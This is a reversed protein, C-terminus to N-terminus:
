RPESGLIFNVRLLDSWKFGVQNRLNPQDFGLGLDMGVTGFMPTQVRFGVGVSRRLDLPNVASLSSWANGAEAFLHGYITGASNFKRRLEVFVKQFVAAGVQDSALLDSTRYGRLTIPDRGTVSYQQRLPDAGVEFREFPVLDKGRSYSGLMGAQVSGKLSWKSGIPHYWDAQVNWKHYELFRFSENVTSSVDQQGLLSYPPTFQGSVSLLTGRRPFHQDDLTSRVFTQKLFINNFTGDSLTSGNELGLSLDFNDTRIRQLNLATLSMTYDDPWRLSRTHEVGLQSMAFSGPSPDQTRSITHFASFTLGHPRKGGLWPETFSLNFSQYTSGASQARLSLHQGGGLIMRNEKNRDFFRGLAINNFTFGVTGLLGDGNPNLGGSLAVQDSSKEKLSYVVDVTGNAPNVPTEISLSEPDFYGLNILARQSRIIDSRSFQDGPKTRLVRQIVHDQTRSNGKVVVRDIVAKRGESLQIKLDVQGLSDVREEVKLDFFLYGQDLYLSSIDDGREGFWLRNGFAGKLYFDGTKFGLHRELEKTTFLLNGYWTIKGIRYRLGEKIEIEIERHGDDDISCQESVIAADLYGLNRYAELISEKDEAFAESSFRSRKFWRKREKTGHMMARLQRDLFVHNGVFGISSIKRLEAQDIKVLIKIGGSMEIEEIRIIADTRGLDEMHKSAVSRIMALQANGVGLGVPVISKLRNSLLQNQKSSLGQVILQNLRALEVVEMRLFVVQGKTKELLIKVDKFIGQQHLRKIAQAIGEGPIEVLQGVRLGALEAITKTDTTNNGVVTIGGIEYTAPDSYQVQASLPQIAILLLAFLIRLHDLM